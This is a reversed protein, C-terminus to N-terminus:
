KVGGISPVTASVLKKKKKKEDDYCLSPVLIKKFFFQAFLSKQYGYTAEDEEGGITKIFRTLLAVVEKSIKKKKRNM